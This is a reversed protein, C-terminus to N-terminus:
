LLLDGSSLQRASMLDVVNQRLHGCDTTGILISCVSPQAAAFGILIQRASMGYRRGVELLQRQQATTEGDQRMAGSAFIHNAVVGIRAEALKKLTAWVSTSRWPHVATQVVIIGPKNLATELVAPDNASFGFYRVKGANHVRNLVEFVAGAKVVALPVDHLYLIDLYDTRLRRLSDNLARELYDPSFDQQLLNAASADRRITAVLSRSHRFQRLAPKILPKMMAMLKGAGAFRYGIKSAVIFKDRSGRIAQGVVIESDGQGYSDATDIFNIGLDAAVNVVRLAQKRSLKSSVSTLRGTGLGLISCLLNTEGLTRYEM